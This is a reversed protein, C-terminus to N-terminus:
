IRQAQCLRKAWQTINLHLQISPESRIPCAHALLGSPLTPRGDCRGKQRRRLQSVGCARGPPLDHFKTPLIIQAASPKMIGMGLLGNAYIAAEMNGFLGTSSLFRNGTGCFREYQRRV